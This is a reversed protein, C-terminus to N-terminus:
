FLATMLPAVTSHDLLLTDTAVTVGCPRTVATVLPLTVTVAREPLADALMGTDTICDAPLITISGDDAVSIDRPSVTCSDAETSSPFPCGTDPATTVHDLLSADTAVTLLSPRTVATPLPLTVTVAREPLADALM